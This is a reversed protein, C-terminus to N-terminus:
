VTFRACCAVRSNVNSTWRLDFRWMVIFPDRKKGEYSWLTRAKRKAQCSEHGALEQGESNFYKHLYQQVRM